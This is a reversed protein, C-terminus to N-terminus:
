MNNIFKDYFHLVMVLLHHFRRQIEVSNRLFFIFILLITTLSDCKVVLLSALWQSSVVNHPHKHQYCIIHTFGLLLDTKKFNSGLKQNASNNKGWIHWGKLFPKNPKIWTIKEVQQSATLQLLHLWLNLQM